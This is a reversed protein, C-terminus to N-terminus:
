KGEVIDARTQFGFMKCFELYKKRKDSGRIGFEERIITFCSPAKRTLRGGPFSIEWELGGKITVMRARWVHAAMTHQSSDVMTCTVEDPGTQEVKAFQTRSM